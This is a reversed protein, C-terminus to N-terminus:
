KTNGKMLSEAIASTKAKQKHVQKGCRKCVGDKDLLHGYILYCFFKTFRTKQNEVDTDIPTMNTLIYHKHAELLDSILNKGEETNNYQKM